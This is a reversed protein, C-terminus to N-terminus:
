TLYWGKRHGEAAAKQQTTEGKFVWISICHKSCNPRHEAKTKAVAQLIDASWWAEPTLM